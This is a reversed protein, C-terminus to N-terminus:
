PFDQRFLLFRRQLLRLLEIPLAQLLDEQEAIGPSDAEAEPLKVPPLSPLLGEALLHLFCSIAHRGSIRPDAYRVPAGLFLSLLQQFGQSGEPPLHRGGPPRILFPSIKFVLLCHWNLRLMNGKQRFRGYECCQCSPGGYQMIKFATPWACCGATVDHEPVIRHTRMDSVSQAGYQYLLQTSGSPLASGMETRSCKGRDWQTRRSKKCCKKGSSYSKALRDAIINKCHPSDGATGSISALIGVRYM